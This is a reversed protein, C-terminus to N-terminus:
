TLIQVDPMEFKGAAVGFALRELDCVFGRGTWYKSRSDDEGTDILGGLSKQDFLSQMLRLRQAHQFKWLLDPVYQASVGLARAIQRHTFGQAKMVAALNGRCTKLDHGVAYNDADLDDM